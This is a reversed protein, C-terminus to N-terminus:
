KLTIGRKGNEAGAGEKRGRQGTRMFFPNIIPPQTFLHIKKQFLILKVLQLHNRKFAGPDSVGQNGSIDDETHDVDKESM